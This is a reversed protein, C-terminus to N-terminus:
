KTHYCTFAEQPEGVWEDIKNNIYEFRFPDLGIAAGFHKKGESTKKINKGAFTRKAESLYEEKVIMWIKEAQQHYGDNPHLGM